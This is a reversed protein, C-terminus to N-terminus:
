QVRIPIVSTNNFTGTVSSLAFAVLTYNGPPLSGVVGWGSNTLRSSGFFAAVDPRAFGMQAAGVFIPAAGTAPYAWVHVASVGPGSASGLDLAWGAVGFTGPVTQNATPTDTWMRPASTPAIVTASLLKPTGWGHHVTSLTSHAYIVLTYSGPPLTGMLGYGSNGFNPGLWAGV